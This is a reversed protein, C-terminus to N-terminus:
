GSKDAIHRGGQDFYSNVSLGTAPYWKVSRGQQGIHTEDVTRAAPPLLLDDLNDLAEDFNEEFASLPITRVQVVVHEGRIAFALGRQYLQSAIRGVLEERSSKSAHDRAYPM